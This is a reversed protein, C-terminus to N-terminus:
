EPSPSESGTKEFAPWSKASKKTTHRTKSSSKRRAATISHSAAVQLNITSHLDTKRFLQNQKRPLREPAMTAPSFALNIRMRERLWTPKQRCLPLSSHRNAPRPFRRIIQWANPDTPARRAMETCGCTKAMITRGRSSFTRCITSCISSRIAGPKKKSPRQYPTPSSPATRM